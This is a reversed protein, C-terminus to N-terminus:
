FSWSYSISRRGLVIGPVYAGLAAGAATAIFDKASPDHEGGRARSRYDAVEKALGVGAGVLFGTRKDTVAAVSAGIAAGVSLHLTKDRGTWDDAQASDALALLALFLAAKM